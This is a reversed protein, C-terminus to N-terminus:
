AGRTHKLLERQQLVSSPQCIRISYYVAGLIKKNRTTIYAMCKSSMVLIEADGLVVGRSSLRLLM